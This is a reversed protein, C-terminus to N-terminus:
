CLSRFNRVNALEDLYQRGDLAVIRRFAPSDVMKLMGALEKVYLFNFLADHDELAKCVVRESVMANKDRALHPYYAGYATPTLYLDFGEIVCTFTGYARLLNYLVRGLAQSSAIHDGMPFKSRVFPESIKTERCSVFVTGYQDVIESRLDPERSLKAHFMSNIFLVKEDFVSVDTEIPKTLVLTFDRYKESPPGGANPGYIYFKRETTRQVRLACTRPAGEYYGHRSLLALYNRADFRSRLSRSGRLVAEAWEIKRQVAGHLDNACLARIYDIRLKNIALLYRSYDAQGRPQRVSAARTAGVLVDLVRASVRYGAARTLYRIFLRTAKVPPSLNDIGVVTESIERFPARRLASKRRWEMLKM